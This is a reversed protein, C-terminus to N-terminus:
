EASHEFNPELAGCDPIIPAAFAAQGCADFRVCGRAEVGRITGIRV